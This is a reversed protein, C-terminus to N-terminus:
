FYHTKKGGRVIQCHKARGENSKKSWWECISQIRMQSLIQSVVTVNLITGVLRFVAGSNWAQGRKGYGSVQLIDRPHLSSDQLRQKEAQTLQSRLGEARTSLERWEQQRWLFFPPFIQQPKGQAKNWENCASSSPLPLLGESKRTGRENDTNSSGGAGGARM